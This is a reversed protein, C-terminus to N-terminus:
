VPYSEEHEARKMVVPGLLEKFGATNRDRKSQMVYSRERRLQELKEKVLTKQQNRDEKKLNETLQRLDDGQKHGLLDEDSKRNQVISLREQFRLIQRQKDQQYKSEVKRKIDVLTRMTTEKEMESIHVVTMERQICDSDNVVQHLHVKPEEPHRRAASQTRSSCSGEETTQDDDDDNDDTDHTIESELPMLTEAPIVTDPEVTQDQRCRVRPSCQFLTPHPTKEGSTGEPAEHPLLDNRVEEDKLHTGAESEVAAEDPTEPKCTKETPRSWAM